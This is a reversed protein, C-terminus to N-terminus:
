SKKRVLGFFLHIPDLRQPAVNAVHAAVVAILLRVLIPHSEIWRDAAQSLMEGERASVNYGIVGAALATWAISGRQVKPAFVWNPAHFRKSLTPNAGIAAM